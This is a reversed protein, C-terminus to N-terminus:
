PPLRMPTYIKETVKKLSVWQRPTKPISLVNEGRQPVLLVLVVILVLETTVVVVVVVAHTALRAAVLRAPPVLWLFVCELGTARGRVAVVVVVVVAVDTAMLTVM